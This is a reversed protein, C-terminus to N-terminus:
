RFTEERGLSLDVDANEEIARKRSSELLGLAIDLDDRAKERWYASDPRKWRAMRIAQKALTFHTDALVRFREATITRVPPVRRSRSLDLDVWEEKVTM